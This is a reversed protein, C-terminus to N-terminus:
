HGAQLEVVTVLLAHAVLQPQEQSEDRQVARGVRREAHARQLPRSGDCHTVDNTVKAIARGRPCQAIEVAILLLCYWRFRSVHGRCVNVTSQAFTTKGNQPVFFLKYLVRLVVSRLCFKEHSGTSSNQLLKTIFM